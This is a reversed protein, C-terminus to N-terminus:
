KESGDGYEADYFQELQEGFRVWQGPDDIHIHIPTRGRQRDNLGSFPFEGDHWVFVEFCGGVVVICRGVYGGMQPWWTAYGVRGSALEFRANASCQDATPEPVDVEAAEAKRGAALKLDLLKQDVDIASDLSEIASEGVDRLLDDLETSEEKMPWRISGRKSHGTTLDEGQAVRAMVSVLASAIQERTMPSSLIYDTERVLIQLLGTGAELDARMEGVKSALAGYIEHEGLIFAVREPPMEDTM